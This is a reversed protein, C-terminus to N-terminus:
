NSIEQSLDAYGMAQLAAQNYDVFHRLAKKSFYKYFYSKDAQNFFPNGTKRQQHVNEMQLQFAKTLQDEDVELFNSILQITGASPTPVLDEYRLDLVPINAAGWSEYNTRWGGCVSYYIPLTLGIRSFSELALDLLNEKALSDITFRNFFTSPSTWRRILRHGPFLAEVTPRIMALSRSKNAELRLFNLASLLCDFPNRTIRIVKGVNGQPTTLDKSGKYIKHTKIVTSDAGRIAKFPLSHDELHARRAKRLSDWGEYTSDALQGALILPFALASNGCKPYTALYIVIM